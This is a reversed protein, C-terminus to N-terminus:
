THLPIVMLRHWHNHAALKSSYEAEGRTDLTDARFCIVKIRRPARLCPVEPVGGVSIVVVPAYGALALRIAKYANPQGPDGGLVVIADVHAPPDTPSWIFLRASTALLVVLVVVVIALM